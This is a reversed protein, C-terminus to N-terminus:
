LKKANKSAITGLGLLLCAIVVAVINKPLGDIEPLGLGKGLIIVGAAPLAFLAMRWGPIFASGVLMMGGLILSLSAVSDGPIIQGVRDAIGLGILGLGIIGRAWPGM